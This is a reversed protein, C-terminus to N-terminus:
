DFDHECDCYVLPNANMACYVMQRVSDSLHLVLDQLLSVDTGRRAPMPRPRPLVPNNRRGYLGACNDGFNGTRDPNM